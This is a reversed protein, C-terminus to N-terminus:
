ATILSAVVISTHRKTQGSSWDGQWLLGIIGYICLLCLAGETFVLGEIHSLHDLMLHRQHRNQIFYPLWHRTYLTHYGIDQTYLITVLTQHIFYPLWHRTYLTHYSFDQTYLITVLTKHIFYSVTVFTKCIFYKIACISNHIFYLSM